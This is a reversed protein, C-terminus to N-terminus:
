VVSSFGSGFRCLLAIPEASASGVPSTDEQYLDEHDMCGLFPIGYMQWIYPMGKKTYLESEKCATLNKTHLRCWATNRIAASGQSTQRSM